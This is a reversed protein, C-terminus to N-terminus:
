RVWVGMKDNGLRGVDCFRGKFGCASFCLGQSIIM